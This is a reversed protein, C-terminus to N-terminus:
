GDDCAAEIANQLDTVEVPKRLIRFFGATEDAPLTSNEFATLLIAKVSGDEDLDLQALFESGTGDPLRYDILLVDFRHERMQEHAEAVSAAWVARYGLADLLLLMIEAVDRHDEVLLINPNMNVPSDRDEAVAHPRTTMSTMM